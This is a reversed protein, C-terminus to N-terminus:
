RSLPFARCCHGQMCPSPHTPSAAFCGKTSGTSCATLLGGRKGRLEDVRSARTAPSGSLVVLSFEAYDAGAIRELSRYAWAPVEYSDLLLGLKLKPTSM